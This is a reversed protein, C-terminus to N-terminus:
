RWRHHTLGHQRVSELITEAAARGAAGWDASPDVRPDDMPPVVSTVWTSGAQMVTAWPSTSVIPVHARTGMQAIAHAREREPPTVIAVAGDDLAMRVAAEAAASWQTEPAAVRLELDPGGSARAEELARLIGAALAETIAPDTSPVLGILARVEGAAARPAEDRPVVHAAPATSGPTPADVPRTLEPESAPPASADQPATDPADGCGGPALALALALALGAACRAM